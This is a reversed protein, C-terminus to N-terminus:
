GTSWMLVSLYCVHYLYSRWHESFHLSVTLMPISLVEFARSVPGDHANLSNYGYSLTVQLWTNRGTQASHYRFMTQINEAPRFRVADKPSAGWGVDSQKTSVSFEM